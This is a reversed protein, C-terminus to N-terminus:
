TGTGAEKGFTGCGAKQLFTPDRQMSSSRIAMDGDCGEKECQRSHIGHSLIHTSGIALHTACLTPELLSGCLTVRGGAPPALQTLTPASSFRPLQQRM